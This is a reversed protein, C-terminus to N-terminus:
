KRKYPKTNHRDTNSPSQDFPFLFRQASTLSNVDCALIPNCLQSDDNRVNGVLADVKWSTM